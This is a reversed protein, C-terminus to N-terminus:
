TTFTSGLVEKRQRHFVYVPSWPSFPGKSAMLITLTLWAIVGTLGLIIAWDDLGWKLDRKFARLLLRTITILSILAITVAMQAIITGQRSDHAAGPPMKVSSIGKKVMDDSDLLHAMRLAGRVIFFDEETAPPQGVLASGTM